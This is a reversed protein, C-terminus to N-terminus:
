DCSEVRELLPETKSAQLQCAQTSADCVPACISIITYKHECPVGGVVGSSYGQHMELHMAPNLKGVAETKRTYM